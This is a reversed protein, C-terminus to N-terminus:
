LEMRLDRSPAIEGAPPPQDVAERTLIKSNSPPLERERSISSTSLKINYKQSGSHPSKLSFQSNIHCSETYMFM